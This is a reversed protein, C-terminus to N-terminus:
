PETLSIALLVARQTAKWADTTDFAEDLAHANPNMGGAGVAIAPVGISMPFNADTSGERLGGDLGLAKTVSLARSVIASDASLSGPPRDGVVVTEVALGGKDGWRANEARLANDIATDVQSRLTQLAAADASRMDIEMWADEAIANVSTGGGVRGVNFTTKPDTPVIADSIAAVARGLAHVPNGIGFASFSHGGMGSFVVKYRISGVATNTINYRGGDVSVFRDVQNKLTDAFLRKVGRLDGLGEEGVTGVFTIPGDTVVGATDLARIVALLVALGRCDDGIGPGRLVPGERTVKVPTGEPFVTDLHASLVLRPREARGPREGLVNGEADTRVNKLGHAVFDNFYVKGRAQEMFPPAPVECIRIQDAITRPEDSEVYALAERVRLDQILRTGVDQALVDVSICGLLAAGIILRIGPM